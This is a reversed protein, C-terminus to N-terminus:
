AILSWMADLAFYGFMAVTKLGVTCAYFPNGEMVDAACAVDDDSFGENELIADMAKDIINLSELGEPCSLTSQRELSSAIIKSISGMADKVSDAIMTLGQGVSIRRVKRWNSGITKTPASRTRVCKGKEVQEDIVKNIQEDVAEDDQYKNPSGYM